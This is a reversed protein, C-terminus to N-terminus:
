LIHDAGGGMPAIQRIAGHGIHRQNGLVVRRDKIGGAGGPAGFPASPVCRDQGGINERRWERIRSIQKAAACFGPRVLLPHRQESHRKKVDDAAKRNQQGVHHCTALQYHHALELRLLCEFQDDRSFTVTV